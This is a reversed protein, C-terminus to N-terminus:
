AYNGNAPSFKNGSATFSCGSFLSHLTTNVFFPSGTAAANTADFQLKDGDPRLIRSILELYINQRDIFNTRDGVVESELTPGNPAYVPGIKQDFSTNSTILLFLREFIILSSHSAEVALVNPEKYTRKEDVRKKVLKSKEISATGGIQKKVTRKM